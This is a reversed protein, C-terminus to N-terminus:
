EQSGPAVRKARSLVQGQSDYRAGKASHTQCLGVPRVIAFEIEPQEGSL